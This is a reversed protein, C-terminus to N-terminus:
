KSKLAELKLKDFRGGNAKGRGTNNSILRFRIISTQPPAYQTSEFLKLASRSKGKSMYESSNCSLLVKGSTDIFEVIAYVTDNSKDIYGSFKFSQKGTKISNAFVKININQILEAEKGDTVGFTYLGDNGHPKQQWKGKIEKWSYKSFPILEASGNQLLNTGYLSPTSVSIKVTGPQSYQYGDHTKFTFSDTGTFGKNPTYAAVGQPSINLTGNTPKKEISYSLTEEDIDSGTLTIAGIKGSHAKAELNNAKPPSNVKYLWNDVLDGYVEDDSSTKYSINVNSGSKAGKAVRVSISQPINYNDPTFILTQPSVSSIAPNDTKISVTVTSIPKMMFQVTINEATTFDITHRTRDSPMVKFGPARTQCNSVRWAMEYGVKQANWQDTISEPMPDIPCRGSILTYIYTGVATAQPGYVHGGGVIKMKPDFQLLSGLLVRRPILRYEDSEDIMRSALFMEWGIM